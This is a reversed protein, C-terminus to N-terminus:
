QVEPAIRVRENAPNRLMRLNLRAYTEDDKSAETITPSDGPHDADAHCRLRQRRRKNHPHIARAQRKADGLCPRLDISTPLSAVDARSGGALDLCRVGEFDKPFRIQIKDKRR